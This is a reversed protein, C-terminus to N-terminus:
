VEKAADNDVLYLMTEGGNEEGFQVQWELNFRCNGSKLYAAFGNVSKWRTTSLHTHHREHVLENYVRNIPVWKSKGYKYRFLDTFEKEFDYSAQGTM